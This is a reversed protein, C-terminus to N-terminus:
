STKTSCRTPGRSTLPAKAPPRSGGPSHVNWRAMPARWRPTRDCRICNLSRSGISGRQARRLLSEDRRPDIMAVGAVDDLRRARLARKESLGADTLARVNAHVDKVDRGVRRTVERIWLTDSRTMAHLIRGVCRIPSNPLTQGSGLIDVVLTDGDSQTLGYVEGPAPAGSRASASGAILLVAAGMVGRRNLHSRAAIEQAVVTRLSRTNIRQM